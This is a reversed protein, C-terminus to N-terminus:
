LYQVLHYTAVSWRKNKALPVDRKERKGRPTSSFVGGKLSSPPVRIRKEAIDACNGVSIVLIGSGPWSKVSSSLLGRGASDLCFCAIM